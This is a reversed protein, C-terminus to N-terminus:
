EVVVCLRGKGRALTPPKGPELQGEVRLTRGPEIAYELVEITAPTERYNGERLATIMWQPADTGDISATIRTAERVETYEDLRLLVAGSSDRLVAPCTFTQQLEHEGSVRVNVRRFLAVRGDVTRLPEGSPELTGRVVVTGGVTCAAIPTPTSARLRRFAGGIRAERVTLYGVVGVLLAAFAVLFEVM